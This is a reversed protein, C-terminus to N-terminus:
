FLWAAQASGNWGVSPVSFGEIGPSFYFEHRFLPLSAGLAAGLQIPGGFPVIAARLSTGVALWPTRRPEGRAVARGSGHGTLRGAELDLCPRLWLAETGIGRLPCVSVNALLSDFRIAVEEQRTV